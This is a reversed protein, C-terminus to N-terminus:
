EGKDLKNSIKKHLWIQRGVPHDNKYKVVAVTKGNCKFRTYDGHIQEHMWHPDIERLLKAFAHDTLEIPNFDNNWM